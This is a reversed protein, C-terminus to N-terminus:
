DPFLHQWNFKFFPQGQGTVTSEKQEKNEKKDLRLTNQNEIVGQTKGENEKRQQASYGPANIKEIANM